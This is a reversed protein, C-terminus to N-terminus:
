CGGAMTMGMLVTDKDKLKAQLGGLTHYSQGNIFLAVQDSIDDGSDTLVTARFEPGYVASLQELLHGLTEGEFSVREESKGTAQKVNTIYIATVEM